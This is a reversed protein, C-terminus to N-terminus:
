RKATYTREYSDYSWRAKWQVCLCIVWRLDAMKLDVDPQPSLNDYGVLGYLRLM